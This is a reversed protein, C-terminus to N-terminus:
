TSVPILCLSLSRGVEHSCALAGAAVEEAGGGSSKGAGDGFVRRCLESLAVAVLLYAM